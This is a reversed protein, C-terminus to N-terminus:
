AAERATKPAPEPLSPRPQVLFLGAFLLALAGWFSPPYREGLIVMAWILGSGTALYAVQGAFVAGARRLLAVYGMYACVACVGSLVIAYEAAGWVRFPTIVQGSLFAAPVSFVLAVLSGGFLTQVPDAARTGWRDVYIGECAYSLAALMAVFLFSVAAMDPLTTGPLLLLAVAGAGLVLGAARVPRFREMGLALALPLAMLPVLSVVLSLVGSPLHPAAAYTALQPAMMGFVAVVAYLRLHAADRVLRRGTVLVVLGLVAVDVITFWMLLGLPQHGTSVAIKTLPTTIGWVGGVAVLGLFPGIAGKM